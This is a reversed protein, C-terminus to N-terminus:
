SGGAARGFATGVMRQGLSRILVKRYEADAWMDDETDIEDAAAAMASAIAAEDGAEVGVLASEAGTARRPGSDLGGGALRARTCAGGDDVEVYACVGIVPVADTVLGWKAYASGARGAAAPVDEGGLARM